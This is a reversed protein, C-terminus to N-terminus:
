ALILFIIIPSYVILSIFTETCKGEKGNKYITVILSMVLLILSYWKLIIM